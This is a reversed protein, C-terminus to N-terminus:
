MEMLAINKGICTYNGYGFMMLTKDMEKVQESDKDLWREPRFVHVDEGFIERDRHLSWPSVGVITGSPIYDGCIM